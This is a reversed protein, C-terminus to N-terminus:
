LSNLKEQLANHGALGKEAKILSYMEAYEVIDLSGRLLESTITLFREKSTLRDRVLEFDMYNPESGKNLENLGHFFCGNLTMDDSVALGGEKDSGHSVYVGKKEDYRGAITPVCGGEFLFRKQFHM